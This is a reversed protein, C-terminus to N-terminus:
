TSFPSLLQDQLDPHDSISAFIHLPASDTDLSQGAAPGPQATVALGVDPVM